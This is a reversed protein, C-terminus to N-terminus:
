CVGVRFDESSVLWPLLPVYQQSRRAPVQSGVPLSERGSQGGGARQVLPGHLVASVM